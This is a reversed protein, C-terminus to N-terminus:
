RFLGASVRPKIDRREFAARGIVFGTLGIGVLWITQEAFQYRPIDGKLLLLWAKMRPTTFFERFPDFAPLPIAALVSDAVCIAVTLSISQFNSKCLNKIPADTRGPKLPHM